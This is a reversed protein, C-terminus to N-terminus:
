EKASHHNQLPAVYPAKETATSANTSRPTPKESEREQEWPPSCMTPNNARTAASKAQKAGISKLGSVPRGQAMVHIPQGKCKRTVM